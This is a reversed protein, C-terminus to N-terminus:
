EECLIIGKKTIYSDFMKRTIYWTGTNKDFKYGLSNLFSLGGESSGAKTSITNCNHDNFISYNILTRIGMRRYDTDVFSNLVEASTIINNIDTWGCSINYFVSAFPFDMTHFVPNTVICCWIGPNIYDHHVICDTLEFFGNRDM